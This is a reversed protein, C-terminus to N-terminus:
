WVSRDVNTSSNAHLNWRAKHRSAKDHWQNWLLEALPSCLHTVRTKKLERKLTDVMIDHHYEWSLQMVYFWRTSWITLPSKVSKLLLWEHQSYILVHVQMALVSYFDNQSKAHVNHSTTFNIVLIVIDLHFPNAKSKTVQLLLLGIGKSSLVNSQLM